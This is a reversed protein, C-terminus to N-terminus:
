FRGLSFVVRSPAFSFDLIWVIGVAWLGLLIVILDLCPKLCDFVFVYRSLSGM